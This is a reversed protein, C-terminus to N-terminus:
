PKSYQCASVCKPNNDCYHFPCGPFSNFDPLSFTRRFTRELNDQEQDRQIQEIVQLTELLAGEGIPDLEDFTAQCIERTGLRKKLGERETTIFQVTRQLIGLREKDLESLNATESM